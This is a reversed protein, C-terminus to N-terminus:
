NFVLTGDGDRHYNALREPEVMSILKEKENNYYTISNKNNSRINLFGVYEKGEIIVNEIMLRDIISRYIICSGDRSFEYDILLDFPGKKTLPTCLYWKQKDKVSFLINSGDTAYVPQSCQEFPGLITQEDQLFWKGEAKYAFAIKKGDISLISETIDDYPGFKREGSVAFWNNDIMTSYAKKKGIYSYTIGFPRLDDIEELISGSAYIAKQGSRTAVYSIEQADPSFIISHYDLNDYPGYKANKTELYWQNQVKWTYAYADGEQSFVPKTCDDYPGYEKKGIFLYSKDKRSAVFVIEQSGPLFSPTPFIWDNFPGIRDRRSYINVNGNEKALYLLNKGDSSFKLSSMYEQYPGSINGNDIIYINGDKRAAFALSEGDPSYQIGFVDDYPGYKNDRTLVYFHDEKRGTYVYNMGNPSVVINFCDDYTEGKKEIGTNSIESVYNFLTYDKKYKNKTYERFHVIYSDDILGKVSLIRQNFKLNYPVETTQSFVQFTFINLFIVLWKIHM